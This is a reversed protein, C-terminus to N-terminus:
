MGHSTLRDRTNIVAAEMAEESQRLKRQMAAARALRADAAASEALRRSRAPRKDLLRRAESLKERAAGYNVPDAEPAGATKAREVARAAHAVASPPDVRAGPAACGALAISLALLLM